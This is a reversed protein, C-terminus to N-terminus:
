SLSTQDLLTQIYKPSSFATNDQETLTRTYLYKSGFHEPMIYQNPQNIPVINFTPKRYSTM